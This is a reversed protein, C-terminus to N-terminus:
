LIYQVELKKEEEKKLKCALILKHRSERQLDTIESHNLIKYERVLWSIKIVSLTCYYKDQEIVLM